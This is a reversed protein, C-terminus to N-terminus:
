RPRTPPGGLRGAGALSFGFANVTGHSRAMTPIDFAPVDLHQGAAWSVALVM